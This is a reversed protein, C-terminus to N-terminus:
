LRQSINGILSRASLKVASRLPPLKRVIGTLWRHCKMNPSLSQIIGLQHNYEMQRPSKKAAIGKLRYMCMRVSTSQIKSRLAPILGFWGRLPTASASIYAQELQPNHRSAQGIFTCFFFRFYEETYKM